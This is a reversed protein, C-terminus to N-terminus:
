VTNLWNTYDVFFDVSNMEYATALHDLHHYNDEETRDRGNQGFKECLFPYAEYIEDAV